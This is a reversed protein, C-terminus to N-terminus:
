TRLYAVRMHRVTTHQKRFKTVAGSNLAGAVIGSLQGANFHNARAGDINKNEILNKTLIRIM